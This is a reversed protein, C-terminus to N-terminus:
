HLWRRRLYPSNRVARGVFGDDVKILFLPMQVQWNGGKKQKIRMAPHWEFAKACAETIDRVIDDTTRVRM